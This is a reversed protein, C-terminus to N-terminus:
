HNWSLYSEKKLGSAMAGRASLLTCAQAAVHVKSCSRLLSPIRFPNWETLCCFSFIYWIFFFFLQVNTHIKGPWSIVLYSIGSCWKNWYLSTPCGWSGCLWRYYIHVWCWLPLAKVEQSSQNRRSVIVFRFTSNITKQWGNGSSITVVAELYMLVSNM